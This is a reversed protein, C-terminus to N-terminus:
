VALRKRRGKANCSAFRWRKSQWMPVVNFLAWRGAGKIDPWKGTWYGDEFEEFEMNLMFCPLVNLVFDLSAMAKKGEALSVEVLTTNAAEFAPAFRSLGALTQPESALHSHLPASFSDLISLLKSPVLAAPSSLSRLYSRLSEVGEHIAVKQELTLFSILLILAVSISSLTKRRPVGFLFHPNPLTVLFNLFLCFHVSFHGVLETLFDESNL